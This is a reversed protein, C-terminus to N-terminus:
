ALYFYQELWEPGGSNMDGSGGEFFRAVTAQWRANVETKGLKQLSEQIHDGELYGVVLGDPRIFLSFNRLGVAQITALLEPWVTEHHKLYDNVSDKKIRLLFCAQAM